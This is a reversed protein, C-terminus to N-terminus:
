SQQRSTTVPVRSHFITLEFFTVYIINGQRKTYRNNHHDLMNLVNSMLAINGGPSNYLSFIILTYIQLEICSDYRSLANFQM